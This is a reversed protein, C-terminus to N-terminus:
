TLLEGRRVRFRDEMRGRVVDIEVAILIAVGIVIM